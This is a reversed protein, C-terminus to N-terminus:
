NDQGKDKLDDKMGKLNDKLNVKPMGLNGNIKDFDDLNVNGIINIFILTGYGDVLIVLGKIIDKDSDPLLYIAIDGGGIIKVRVPREWPPMTIQKKIIEIDENSYGYQGGFSFVHVYVGKVNGYIKKLAEAEDIDKIEKEIEKEMKKVAMKLLRGDLEVEVHTIAKKSLRDLHKANIKPSQALAPLGISILAALAAVFRKLSAQFFARWMRALPPLPKGRLGWQWLMTKDINKPMSPKITM